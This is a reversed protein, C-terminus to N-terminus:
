LPKGTSLPVRCFLQPYVKNPFTTVPCPHIDKFSFSTEIQYLSFFEESHPHHPVAYAAWLPQPHVMGPPTSPWTPYPGLFGPRTHPLWSVAPLQSQTPTLLGELEFWEIITHNCQPLSHITKIIAFSILDGQCFHMSPGQANRTAKPDAGLSPQANRSM